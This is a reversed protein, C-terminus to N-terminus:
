ARVSPSRASPPKSRTSQPWIATSPSVACIPGSTASARPTGQTEATPDSETPAPRAVQVATESPTRRVTLTGSGQTSVTSFAAASRRIGETSPTSAASPRGTGTIPAASAPASGARQPRSPEGM